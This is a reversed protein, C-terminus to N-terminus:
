GVVPDRKREDAIALASLFSDLGVLLDVFDCFTMRTRM